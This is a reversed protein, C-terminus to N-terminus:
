KFPSEYDCAQPKVLSKIAQSENSADYRKDLASIKTNVRAVEHKINRTTAKIEEMDNKVCGLVFNRIPRAIWRQFFATESWKRKEKKRAGGVRRYRDLTLNLRKRRQYEVIALTISISLIITGLFVGVLILLNSDMDLM